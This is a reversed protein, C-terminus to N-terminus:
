KSLLYKYYQVKKEALQWSHFKTAPKTNAELVYPQLTERDIGVDIGFYNIVGQRYSQLLVPLEQAIHNLEDFLAEAKDGAIAELTEMADGIYGGQAVNSVIRNSGIRPYIAVTEWDGSSGRAVLLRFDVTHKEDLSFDLRPQVLPLGYNHQKLFVIYEEWREPTLVFSELASELVVDNGDRLVHYVGIGKRGGSPKIIARPLLKLLHLLQSYSDATYTPIAYAFLPSQLMYASVGEKKIGPNDILTSHQLLWERRRTFEPDDKLTLRNFQLETLLPVDTEINAYTGKSWVVASLRQTEVDLDFLNYSCLPVDYAASMVLLNHTLADIRPTARVIGIMEKM